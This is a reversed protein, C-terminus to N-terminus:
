QTEEIRDSWPVYWDPAFTEAKTGVAVNVLDAIRRCV